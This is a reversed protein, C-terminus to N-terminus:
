NDNILSFWVTEDFKGDSDGWAAVSMSQINFSDGLRQRNFQDYLQYVTLDWVNIINLSNHHSSISSIINPLEM